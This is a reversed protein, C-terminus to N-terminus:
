MEVHVCTSIWIDSWRLKFNECFHPVINSVSFIAADVSEQEERFLVELAAIITSLIAVSFQSAQDFFSSFLSEFRRDGSVLRSAYQFNFFFCRLASKPM